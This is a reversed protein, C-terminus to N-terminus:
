QCLKIQKDVFEEWRRLGNDVAIWIQVSIAFLQLDNALSIPTGQECHLSACGFPVSLLARRRGDVGVNNSVKPDYANM